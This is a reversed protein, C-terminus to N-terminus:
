TNLWRVVQAASGAERRIRRDGLNSALRGARRAAWVPWFLAGPMGQGETAVVDADPVLRRRFFAFFSSEGGTLDAMAAAHSRAQPSPLLADEAADMVADPPPEFQAALPGFWKAILALLLDLGREWGGQEAATRIAAWNLEAALFNLDSLVLPGCDLRHGYLAHVILHAALHEPVPCLVSVGGCEVPQAQALVESSDLDPVDYGRRHSPHSLRHHVEITVGLGPHYQGPLQHDNSLAANLLSPAGAETVFGAKTLVAAADLAQGHEVLLDIDRMPRLGPEPYHRWALAVGKLAVPRIGAVALRDLALRLAAQQALATLAAARRARRWREAQEAPTAWAQTESRWALLPELRHAEAMEAILSWRAGPELVPPGTGGLLALLQLKSAVFDSTSRSIHRPM